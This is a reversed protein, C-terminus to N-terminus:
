ADGVEGLMEKIDDLSVKANAAESEELLEQLLKEKTKQLALVREEIHRAEDLLERLSPM